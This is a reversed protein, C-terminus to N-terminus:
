KPCIPMLWGGWGYQPVRVGTLPVHQAPPMAARRLGANAQYSAMAVAPTYSHLSTDAPNYAMDMPEPEITPRPVELQVPALETTYDKGRWNFRSKGARLAAAFADSFSMGDYNARKPAKKQVRKHRVPVDDLNEVYTPLTATSRAAPGKVEAVKGPKRRFAVNFDEVFNDWISM